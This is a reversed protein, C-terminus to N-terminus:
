FERPITWDSSLEKILSTKEITTIARYPLRPDSEKILIAYKNLTPHKRVNVWREANYNPINAQMYQHIKLQLNELLQKNTSILYGLSFM